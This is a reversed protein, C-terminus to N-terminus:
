YNWHFPLPNPTHKIYPVVNPNLRIHALPVSMSPSSSSKSFAISAFSSHLYKPITCKRRNHAITNKLHLPITPLILFKSLIHCISPQYQIGFLHQYFTWILVVNIVSNYALLGVMFIYHSNPSIITLQLICQYGHKACFAMHLTKWLVNLSPPFGLLPFLFNPQPLNKIEHHSDLSQNQSDSNKNIGIVVNKILILILIVCTYISSSTLIFNLFHYLLWIYM